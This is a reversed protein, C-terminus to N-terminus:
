VRDQGATHGSTTVIHSVAELQTFRGLHDGMPEGPVRRYANWRDGVSAHIWGIYDGDYTVSYGGVTSVELRVGPLIERSSPAVRDGV